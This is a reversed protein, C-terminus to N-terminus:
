TNLVVVAEDVGDDGDGRIIIRYDPDLMDVILPLFSGDKIMQYRTFQQSLDSTPQIAQTGSRNKLFPSLCAAVATAQRQLQLLVKILEHPATTHVLLRTTSITYAVLNNSNQWLRRSLKLFIGGSGRATDLGGRSAAPPGPTM